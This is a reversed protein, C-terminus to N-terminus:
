GAEDCADQMRRYHEGPPQPPCPGNDASTAVDSVRSLTRHVPCRDAMEILRALREAELPAKFIIRRDFRDQPPHTEIVSHAVTVEFDPLTWGKGRAYLRLTMSTCAALGASLLQYPTPGDGGGGVNDPEDVLIAAGGAEVRTAFPAGGEIRAVVLNSNDM